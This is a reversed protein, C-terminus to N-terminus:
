DLGAAPLACAVWSRSADHCCRRSGRRSVRHRCWRTCESMQMQRTPVAAASSSRATQRRNGPSRPRRSMWPCRLRSSRRSRSTRLSKGGGRGFKGVMEPILTDSWAHAAVMARGAQITGSTTTITVGNANSAIGTVTARCFRAGNRPAAAAIGALHRGSHLLGSKPDFYAGAIEQGLPTDIREQTAERDLMHAAFGDAQLLAQNHRMAVLNDTILALSIPGPQRSDCAIGEEAITDIALDRGSDTLHWLDIATKQGLAAVATAYGMAAGGILFGGNRGTARWGIAEPEIVTVGLGHTTLWCATRCGVLGGGITVVESTAPLDDSPAPPPFTAHWHSLPPYSDPTATVHTRWTFHSNVDRESPCLTDTSATTFAIRPPSTPRQLFVIGLISQFVSVRSSTRSRSVDPASTTSGVAAVSCCPGCRGVPCSLKVTSDMACWAAACASGSITM